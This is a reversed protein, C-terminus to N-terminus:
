ELIIAEHRSIIKANLIKGQETKIKVEEGINADELLTAEIEITLGNEKLIAKITEKKSLDRKTEFLNETFIQGEKINSKMMLNPSLDSVIARSPLNDLAIVVREYDDSSLIKGNLLNHKAKFVDIKADIEYSFYIKKEKDQVRFVGIFSGSSKKLMTDLIVISSLKYRSFDNPLPSKIFIKPLSEIKVYPSEEQFKKLFAASIENIKGMMQCNRKFIVVGDSSDIVTVNRDSFQSIIQSSPISYQIREKPITVVDFNDKDTFGFFSAQLKDQEICYVKEIHIQISFLPSLFILTLILISRSVLNSSAVGVKALDHEVVSSNGCFPRFEIM